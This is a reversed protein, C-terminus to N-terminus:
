RKWEAMLDVFPKALRDTLWGGYGFSHIFEAIVNAIATIEELVKARETSRGRMEGVKEGHARASAVLLLLQADLDRDAQYEEWYSAVLKRDFETPDRPDFTMSYASPWVVSPVELM